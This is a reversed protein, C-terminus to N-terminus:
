YVPTGCRHSQRVFGDLRHRKTVIRVLEEVFPAAVPSIVIAEVLKKLNMRLHNDPFSMMFIGRVEKEHEFSKRKLHGPPIPRNLDPLTMPHTQFDVYEVQGLMGHGHPSFDVSERIREMTTVVAVGAGGRAYLQWLADSEHDSAHWCTAYSSIRAAKINRPEYEKMSFYPEVAGKDRLKAYADTVAGEFPDNFQDLRSHWLNSTEVLWCFKEFSMYRWILSKPNISPSSGEFIEYRGYKVKVSMGQNQWSEWLIALRSLRQWRVPNGRNTYVSLLMKESATVDELALIAPPITLATDTTIMIM